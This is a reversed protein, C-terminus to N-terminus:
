LAFIWLIVAVVFLISILIMLIVNTMSKQELDQTMEGIKQDLNKKEEESHIKSSELLMTAKKYEIM